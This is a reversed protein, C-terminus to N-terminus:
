HDDEQGALDALSRLGADLHGSIRGDKFRERRLLHSKLFSSQYFFSVALSTFNAPYTPLLRNESERQLKAQKETRPLILLAETM